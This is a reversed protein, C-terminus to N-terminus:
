HIAKVDSWLREPEGTRHKEKRFQGGDGYYYGYSSYYGYRGKKPVDNVVVGLVHAGVSLLGHRAQQSTKRTSKEARLVLVVVDCIAGLILADTVPMVPPSDIVIRDYTNALLELLKAFAESNLIEAPNPVDPGCALLDLGQIETRYIADELRVAGALISSLGRKEHNFGFIRRQMPKRFDADLLVVRQEAQAMAIALNSALTTKGDAPTPSTILITKAEGKPAGFFIATRITRYAEAWQSKSDLHTKQGRSAISEGRSMSPVVGLVPMNLAASIEEASRLTQDTLNRVLGLGGGFVLGMVLAMAMYRSKQPESPKDAPRAYELITINLAGVDATVNLDKIHQVVIDYEKQARDWDSELLRYRNLQQDLEIAQQCQEEYYAAYQGERKKAELYEQEAVALQAQAFEKDLDAIQSTLNAIEAELAKVAPHDRTMQRLRDALRDQFQVLRSKLDAAESDRAANVGRARQAEVFQKLTVPDGIMEKTSEYFSQSSIADKQAENLATSWRELEENIVNGQRGELGLAPNDNRFDVMAKFKQTLEESRKDKTVELIKLVEASTSKKSTAHYTIYADVVVNVVQAGEAPYPSDFSVSLIDDRKGVSVQLTNKMYSIHNDIGFFTQMKLLSPNELAATLIPTSTLLEAQTYLYNKSQTMVGEERETFIKPGSQEVYVRSTSTYIPTAKTVYILTATLAVVTTALVIWRSRWLILALSESMMGM